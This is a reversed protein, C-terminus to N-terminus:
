KSKVSEVFEGVHVSFIYDKPNAIFRSNNELSEGEAFRFIDKVLYITEGDVLALEYNDAHALGMELEPSSIIFQDDSIVKVELYKWHGEENKYEIDYHLRDNKDPTTSYGSVWRVHEKTYCDVLTQYVLQEAKKGSRKKAADKRGSHLWGNKRGGNSGIIISGKTLTSKVITGIRPPHNDGEEEADVKRQDFHANLYATLADDNGPFFLLSRMAEDEIDTENIAYTALLTEYHIRIDAQEDTIKDLDIQYHQLVLSRLLSCYSVNFEYRIAEISPEMLHILENNYANLEQIFGSQHAPLGNLKHWLLQKFQYEWDKIFNTLQKKHYLYFGSPLIEALDIRLEDCIATVLDVADKNAFNEVDAREYNEPLNFNLQQLVQSRLAATNEIPEALRKGTLRFIRQWFDVEYRPVGLLRYAEDLKERGIDQLALHNTDALDNKLIQRFDNKLDNIKFVICMMEAFADCFISDKKLSDITAQETQRYYFTDQRNIFEKSEIETEENATFSFFCHDVIEIKCQRLLRAENQKNNNETLKKRLNPSNLRYALLYPKLKDFLRSFEKNIAHSQLKDVNIQIDFDRLSRIGFYQAVHEEGSRKPLNLIFLTNLIRKPLVTNDSYYVEKAYVYDEEDGCRAFYQIDTPVDISSKQNVLGELALKYLAQTARGKKAVDKGPVKRLIAYINAPDVESFSEKAGLKLLISRAENRTINYRALLEYDIVLDDNILRTLEEGADELTFGAFLGASVFQFRIYSYEPLLTPRWRSFFWDIRENNAELKNRIQEDKLALLLLQTPSLRRVQEFNEIKSYVSDSGITNSRDFDDPEPTGNQFIFQFYADDRWRNYQGTSIRAYKNVGLWLFFSEVLSPEEKDLAWYDIASLYDDVHLIGKYIETTLQGSIYTASLFLDAANTIKGALNVLPVNVRLKEQRNNIHQFNAFLANVMERICTLQEEVETIIHLADWTGAIIRDIVNNSDYPQVNVVSKIIRQLERSRNLEKKDFGDELRAELLDYLDASMFDIQVANPVHFTEGSRRVPTFAVDEQDIVEGNDNVLLSFRQQSEKVPLTKALVVILEARLPLLMGSNSLEDIRGILYEYEYTDEEFNNDVEGALPLLLDPLTAPFYQQFFISFADNYYVAEDLAHYTGSIVPYITETNRLENLAEYFTNILKADSKANKPSILKYPRWDVALQTLFSACDKLLVVLEELIYRNRDSENLHNRSSNLEFTGHIICPLAINLQTPFYNFLQTYTDSLDDRFAVKLEYHESENKNKDRYELPLEASRRFVRWTKNDITVEECDTQPTKACTLVQVRQDHRLITIKRIHNLFLLIEARIEDLQSDIRDEFEKKCSIEIITTWEQEAPGAEVRPIALVPFPIATASLDHAARIDQIDQVSLELDNEFVDKAIAESFSIACGNTLIRISAAWNLISRFGLGKNGIYSVKTKTSLNAIMLSRIGGISFSNGKNAITLLGSPKHWSIEAETSSADDVNQLLELLQRGNYEKTLEQERNFDAIFRDPDNRYTELSKKILRDIGKNFEMQVTMSDILSSAM